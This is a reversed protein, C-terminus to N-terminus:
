EVYACRAHPVDSEARRRIYVVIALLSCFIAMWDESWPHVSLLHSFASCAM